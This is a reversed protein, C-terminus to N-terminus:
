EAGSPPLLTNYHAHTHRFQHTQTHIHRDTIVDESSCTRDEGFKKHKNGIAM